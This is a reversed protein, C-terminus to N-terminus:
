GACVPTRHASSGASEMGGLPSQSNALTGRAVCQRLLPECLLAASPWLTVHAAIDGPRGVVLAMKVRHSTSMHQSFTLNAPIASEHTCHYYWMLKRSTSPEARGIKV